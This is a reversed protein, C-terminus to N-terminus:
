ADRGFTRPARLVMYHKVPVVQLSRTTHQVTGFVRNFSLNVYNKEQYNRRQFM